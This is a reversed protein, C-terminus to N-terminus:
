LKDMIHKLRKKLEETVRKRTDPSVRRGKQPQAESGFFKPVSADSGCLNSVVFAADEGLDAIVGHVVAWFTERAIQSPIDDQDSCTLDFLCVEGDETPVYASCTNNFWSSAATQGNYPDVSRCYIANWVVRYIYKPNFRSPHEELVSVNKILYQLCEELCDEEIAAPTRLKYWALAIQDFYQVFLWAAKDEEPKHVWEDFSLPHVWGLYNMFMKKTAHFPSDEATIEYLHSRPKTLHLQTDLDPTCGINITVNM